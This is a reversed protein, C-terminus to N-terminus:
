SADNRKKAPTAGGEGGGLSRKDPKRSVNFENIFFQKLRDIVNAVTTHSCPIGEALLKSKIERLSLDELAYQLIKRDRESEINKIFGRLRRDWEAREAALVPSIGTDALNLIEEPRQDDFDFKKRRLNDCTAHRAIVALWCFFRGYEDADFDPEFDAINLSIKFLVTNYLEDADAVNDTSFKCITNLRQKFVPLNFLAYFAERGAKVDELLKRFDVEERNDTPGNDQM